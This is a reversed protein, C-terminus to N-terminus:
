KAVMQVTSHKRLRAVSNPIIKIEGYIRVTDFQKSKLPAGGKRLCYGCKCNKIYIVSLFKLVHGYKLLYYNCFIPGVLM